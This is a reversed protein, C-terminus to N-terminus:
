AARPMQYQEESEENYANFLEERKEAALYQQEFDYNGLM